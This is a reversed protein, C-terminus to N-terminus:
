ATALRESRRRVVQNIAASFWQREQRDLGFLFFIAAYLLGGAALHAIVGVLSVPVFHRTGALLAVVLVAPWAPPWVVQRLADWTSMNVVACARPFVFAFALAAAPLLTSWAVGPMGFLKVAPISLLVNAVAAMAAAWALSQHNGTGKLLTSPVAMLTRVVVVAALVRLVHTAGEFGPGVWARILVDGVAAVSGCLAMSVALQFRTAKVMLRRQADSEGEVARGVIVPFLFTQFQNTMKVLAESLRLAVSYVAIASTTMFIGLIFTDTAYSLKSSWDIVAVYASFGTLERLRARRFHKLSIHLEPFVKYANYRYIWYPILRVLTTAVVLEVLGFGLWLVAVNVIGTVVIFSGGVVNNIYYREFGNILGGFVSFVFHLSVNIAIILLVIQGTRAQAADLNFIHPLAFSVAIAVLYVLIGIGSFVYFMTSLTENLAQADKKARFEAVYKVVAGGYGLELVSFYGTVSAVLMWLGYDTSGLYKLNIPLVLLGILAIAVMLVYRSALNRAFILLRNERLQWYASSM